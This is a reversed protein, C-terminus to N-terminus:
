SMFVDELTTAILGYNKFNVQEVNQELDNLMVEFVQSKANFLSYVVESGSLSFHANILKVKSQHWGLDNNVRFKVSTLLSGGSRLRIFLKDIKWYYLNKQMTLILGLHM